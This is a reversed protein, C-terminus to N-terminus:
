LANFSLGTVLTLAADTRQEIESADDTSGLDLVQRAATQFDRELQAEGVSRQLRPQMNATDEAQRWMPVINTAAGIRVGVYLIAAQAWSCGGARCAYFFMRDARRRASTDGVAEDCAADHVISARRCEGTYPSGILTWLARPISAGDVVYGLPVDWRKGNPDDFWFAELLAMRRDTSVETLWLTKPDGSFRGFSM